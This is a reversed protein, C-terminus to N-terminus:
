AALPVALGEIGDQLSDFRIAVHQHGDLLPGVRVVEGGIMKTARTVPCRLNEFAIAIREGEHTERPGRLNLSAGGSSIDLTCGIVFQMRASPRLKVGIEAHARQHARREANMKINM